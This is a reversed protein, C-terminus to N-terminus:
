RDERDIHRWANKGRFTLGNRTVVHDESGASWDPAYRIEYVKKSDNSAFAMLVADARDPSRGLRKKTDAKPEVVGRGASDLKYSPAVLDAALQEDPDLDIGPLREAFQFWAESRRNPYERQDSAANASNFPSVRFESVERLRDTVGGGLGADDVVLVPPDNQRRAAVKRAVSLIRGATEMTDRGQYAQAIRVRSGERVVIVTEDSGFRAVDCSVVVPHGPEVQRAAAAEVESLPCVTDDATSPFEGLVRVQYLPSGEGWKRKATEVWERSVLKRLVDDPVQEGTFAPTDFASISITNWLARESHFARHFTGALTTPNGILLLRAGATTLFSEGAEFIREDVGSAEDVILLLHEAHHGAFREPQDTSLGLAFWDAELELRTDYLEADAFFGEAAIYGAAIERWLQFKIQAVGACDDAGEIWPFRRPVV